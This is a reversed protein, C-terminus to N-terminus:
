QALAIALLLARQTGQWSNATDFTEELAHASTGAGGGDITVAPIKLSMPLNSDTSGESFTPTLGLARTVSVAAEVVASSAPTEGAPRDGVLTKEVSVRGVQSWRVNEATLAQDVARHFRGDLARLASQDVSRLDVEM